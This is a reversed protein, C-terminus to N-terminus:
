IMILIEVTSFNHTVLIDFETYNKLPILYKSERM